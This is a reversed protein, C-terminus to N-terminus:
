KEDKFNKYANHLYYYPILLLIVNVIILLINGDLHIFSLLQSIFLIIGFIVTIISKKKSLLLGFIGAIVQYAAGAYTAVLISLAEKGTIGAVVLDKSTLSRSSLLNICNISDRFNNPYCKSNKFTKYWKEYKEKKQKYM